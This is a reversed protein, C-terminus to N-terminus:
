TVLAPAPDPTNGSAHESGPLLGACLAGTDAPHTFVPRAAVRQDRQPSPEPGFGPGWARRAQDRGSPSPATVASQLAPSSFANVFAGRKEWSGGGEEAFWEPEESEGARSAPRFSGAAAAQKQM